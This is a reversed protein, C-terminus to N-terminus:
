INKFQGYFFLHVLILFRWESIETRSTFHHRSSRSLFKLLSSINKSLSFFFKCMNTTKFTLERILFPSEDFQRAIKSQFSARAKLFDANKKKKGYSIHCKNTTKFTLERILFPSEDVQRTIKIQFSARAEFFDELLYQRNTNSNVTFIQVAGDQAFAVILM